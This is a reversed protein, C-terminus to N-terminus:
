RLHAFVSASGTTSRYQSQSPVGVVRTRRNRGMAEVAPLRASGLAHLNPSPLAAGVPLSGGVRRYRPLGIVTHMAVFEGEADPPIPDAAAADLVPETPAAPPADDDPRPQPPGIPGSAEYGETLLPWEEHERAAPPPRRRPRGPGFREKLTGHGADEWLVVWAVGILAVVLALPRMRAGLCVVGVLACLVPVHEM